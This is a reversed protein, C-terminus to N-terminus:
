FRRAAEIGKLETIELLMGHKSEGGSLMPSLKAAARFRGIADIRAMLSFNESSQISRAKTYLESCFEGKCNFFILKESSADILYPQTDIGLGSIIGTVRVLKGDYRKPNGTLDSFSVNYVTADSDNRQSHNGFLVVAVIGIFLAFVAILSKLPVSNM